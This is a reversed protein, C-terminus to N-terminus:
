ASVIVAQIIAQRGKDHMYIQKGAQSHSPMCMQMDAQRCAQIDTQHRGTHRDTKRSTQIVERRGTQRGTQKGSQRYSHRGVRISAQRQKHM